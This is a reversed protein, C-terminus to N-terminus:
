WVFGFGTRVAAVAGVTYDVSATFTFSGSLIRFGGGVVVPAFQKDFAVVGNVPDDAGKFGSVEPIRGDLSTDTLDVRPAAHIRHLGVGVFPSFVSTNMGQTPGFALQYGLTLNTDFVGLELEDNGVYGSYGIELTLDPYPAFGEVLGWRGYGSLMATQTVVLWGLNVGAELSFPLGKRFQLTPILMVPPAEDDTSVLDWGSPNIGDITGTRIFAVTTGLGFSFGNIGLTQAPLSPKNGIAAGLERVVQQYGITVYDTCDSSVPTSCVDSETSIPDGSSLPFDQMALISIGNFEQAQALSLFIILM